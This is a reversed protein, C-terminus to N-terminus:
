IHILSLSKGQSMLDFITDTQDGNTVIHTKGLTLVPNYSDRICMELKERAIAVEYNIDNVHAELEAVM